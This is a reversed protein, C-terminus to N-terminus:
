QMHRSQNIQQLLALYELEKVEDNNQKAENMKMAYSFRLNELFQNIIATSIEHLVALRQEVELSKNEREVIALIRERDADSLPALPLREGNFEFNTVKSIVTETGDEPYLEIFAQFREAISIGESSKPLTIPSAVYPISVTEKLYAIFDENVEKTGLSSETAITNLYMNREISSQVRALFPFLKQRISQKLQHASLASKQLVHLTHLIFHEGHKLLEKWSDTGNAIIFDAPDVGEPLAVVKPNMGMSLTVLAAREMAKQGASDGDFALFLNPTLRAIVSLQASSDGITTESVATGSTAVTNKFGAQHSLVLDMQGEVLIAFNHKKIAIKAKDFGFLVRSKQFVETEPSNLYKPGEETDPFMRGSFAVIRGSSDTLPFIIRGRFRDYYGKETKKILGAREYYGHNKEDLGGAITRWEMPAYGIRFQEITEEMVGRKKLYEVAEPNKKLLAQYKRAAQELADYVSDTPEATDYQATLPIGARDALVKLAGKFDLGEFEQVFNLIDGKAGCGFCYYLGREPSVSFSATKENHFPCRAKFQTGSPELTIYTSLVETIPLRHKIQEILRNDM